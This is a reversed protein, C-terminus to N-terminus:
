RFDDSNIRIVDNKIGINKGDRCSDILMIIVRQIKDVRGLRNFGFKRVRAYGAPNGIDRKSKATVILNSFSNM